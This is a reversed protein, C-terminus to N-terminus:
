ALIKVLSTINSLQLEAKKEVQSLEINKEVLYLHRSSKLIEKAGMLKRQKVFLKIDM